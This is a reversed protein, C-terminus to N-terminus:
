IQTATQLEVGRLGVIPKIANREHAVERATHTAQNAM